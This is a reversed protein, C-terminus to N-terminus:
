HTLYYGKGSVDWEMVLDGVKGGGGRVNPPEKVPLSPSTQYEPSPKSPEGTGLENEGRVRFIYSTWPSLGTVTDQYQDDSLKTGKVDSVCLYM